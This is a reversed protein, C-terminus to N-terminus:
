LGAATGHSSAVLKQQMCDSLLLRSSPAECADWECGKARSREVCLRQGERRREGTEPETEGAAKPAASAKKAGPKKPAPAEDDDFEFVSVTSPPAVPAPAKGYTKKAAPAKKVPVPM